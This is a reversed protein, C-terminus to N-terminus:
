KIQFKIKRLKEKDFEKHNTYWELLDKDQKSSNCSRCAPVINEKSYAGGKKLPVVHDQHLLENSSELHEKTSLGCYACSNDYYKLIEVWEDNTLTQEVSNKRAEYRQGIRRAKEPNNKYWERNHALYSEKNNSYRNRMRALESDRNDWHYDRSQKQLRDKNLQYHERKQKNVKDRNKALYASRKALQEEKNEQYYRKSRRNEREKNRSHYERNYEKVCAKCKNNIGTKNSSAKGFESIDKEIKCTICAKTKLLM